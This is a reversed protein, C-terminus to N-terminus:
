QRKRLYGLAESSKRSYGIEANQKRTVGNRNTDADHERSKLNEKTKTPIGSRTM